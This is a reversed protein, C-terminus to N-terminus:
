EKVRDLLIRNKTKRRKKREYEKGKTVKPGGIKNLRSM